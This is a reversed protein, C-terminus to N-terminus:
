RHMRAMQEGEPQQQKNDDAPPGTPTSRGLLGDRVRDVAAAVEVLERDSAPVADGLTAAVEERPGGPLRSAERHARQRLWTAALGRQRGRHLLEGVADVTATSPLPRLRPEEVPEGLRRGLAAVLVVFALAFQVLAYWVGDPVLQWLTREGTGVITPQLLVVRAAGDSGDSGDGRDVGARLLRIALVANDAEALWANTFPETGGVAVVRGDGQSRAVLAVGGDAAAFCSGSAAEFTAVVGVVSEVDDLRLPGTPAAATCASGRAITAPEIAFAAIAPSRDASPDTVVLTGGDDIWRDLAGRWLAAARAAEEARAREDDGEGAGEAGAAAGSFAGADFADDLGPLQWVVGGRAQELTAPTAEAITVDVDFSRALLVLAALGDPATSRPDYPPGDRRGSRGLLSAVVVAAVIAVVGAGVLPGRLRRGSM